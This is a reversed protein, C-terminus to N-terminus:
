DNKTIKAFRVKDYVKDHFLNSEGNTKCTKKNRRSATLTLGHRSIIAHHRQGVLNGDVSGRRREPERGRSDDDRGVTRSLRVGLQKGAINRGQGTKARLNCVPSGRIVVDAEGGATARGIGIGYRDSGVADHDTAAAVGAREVAQLGQALGYRALAVAVYEVGYARDAGRRSKGVPPRMEVRRPMEEACVRDLNKDVHHGQVAHVAEVPVDGVVLAPAQLDVTQRQEGLYARLAGVRDNAPVRCVVVAYGYAAIIGVLLDAVDHGIGGLTM